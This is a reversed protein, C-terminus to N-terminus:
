ILCIFYLYDYLTVEIKLASINPAIFKQKTLHISSPVKFLLILISANQYKSSRDINFASYPFSQIKFLKSRLYKLPKLIGM